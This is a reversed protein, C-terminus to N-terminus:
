VSISFFWIDSNDTITEEMLAATDLQPCQSFRRCVKEDTEEFGPESAEGKETIDYGKTSNEIGVDFSFETSYEASNEPFEGYEELEIEVFVQVQEYSDIEMNLVDSASMGAFERSVDDCVAIDNRKISEDLSINYDICIAEENKDLRKGDKSVYEAKDCSAENYEAETKVEEMEGHTKLEQFM